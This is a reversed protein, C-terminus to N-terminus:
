GVQGIIGTKSIPSRGAYGGHDNCYFSQYKTKGAIRTGNKSINESGCTKCAHAKGVHIATNFRADFHQSLYNWLTRTDETDKAGYTCMKELAEKGERRVVSPTKKFLHNSVIKLEKGSLGSSQLTELERSDQIKIWDDMSMVNKGGIGCMKSIYDLSQSPLRFYRRMQKELDDCYKNWEPIGPLGHLMRLANIMKVDFRDSNKGICHDAKKILEDFKELMGKTGGHKDYRLVKVDKGDNWCYQICILDHMEFNPLLQKHNVFQKGCNWVRAKIPLTEIDFYLVRPQKSM